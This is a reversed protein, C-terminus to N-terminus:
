AGPETAPVKHWGIVTTGDEALDHVVTEGFEDVTGDPVGAPLNSDLPAEVAVESEVVAAEGSVSIAEDAMYTKDPVV